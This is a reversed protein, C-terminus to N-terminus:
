IKSSERSILGEDNCTLKLFDHREDLDEVKLIDIRRTEFTIWTEATVSEDYACYIIHTINTETNKGDFYTKGDITEILALREPIAPDQETFVEDFDVTDFLPPAINRNNFTIVDVMDGVCVHRKKKRITICKSM